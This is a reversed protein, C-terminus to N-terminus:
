VAPNAGSISGATITPLSAPPTAATATANSSVFFSLFRYNKKKHNVFLSKEPMIHAILSFIRHLSSYAKKFCESFGPQHSPAHPHPPVHDQLLATSLYAAEPAGTVANVLRGAGHHPGQLSSPRQPSFSFGLWQRCKRSAPFPANHSTSPRLCPPVADFHM